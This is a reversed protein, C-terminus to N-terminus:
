QKQQPTVINELLTKIKSSQHHNTSQDDEHDITCCKCTQGYTSWIYTSENSNFASCRSKNLRGCPTSTICLSSILNINVILICLSIHIGHNVILKFM